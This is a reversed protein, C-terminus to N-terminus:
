EDETEEFREKLWGEYRELYEQPQLIPEGLSFREDVNDIYMQRVFDEFTVKSM